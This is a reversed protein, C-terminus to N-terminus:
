KNNRKLGDSYEGVLKGFYPILVIIGSVLPYFFIWAWDIAQHANKLYLVVPLGSGYGTIFISIVKFLQYKWYM